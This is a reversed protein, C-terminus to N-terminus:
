RYFTSPSPLNGNGLDLLISSSPQDADPPPHKPKLAPTPPPSPEDVDPPIPLDPRSPLPPGDDTDPFPFPGTKVLIVYPTHYNNYM